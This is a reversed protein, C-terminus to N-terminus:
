TSLYSYLLLLWRIQNLVYSTQHTSEYESYVCVVAQGDHRLVSLIVLAVAVRALRVVFTQTHRDDPPRRPTWCDRPPAPPSCKSTPHTPWTSLRCEYRHLPLSTVPSVSGSASTLRDARACVCVCVCVCLNTSSYMKPDVDSCLLDSNLQRANAYHLKIFTRKLNNM